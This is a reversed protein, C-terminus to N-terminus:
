TPYRPRRGVTVDIWAKTRSLLERTEFWAANPYAHRDAEAGEADMGISRAVWLARSLHFRQTVIIAHEIGFVTHARVISSYTDLGAHDLILASRPVGRAALYRAMADTEDYDKRSHDGTVLIKPARGSRHLALATDLRDRLVESPEEGRVGAGLVVIAEAGKRSPNSEGGRLVVVNCVAMVAVGIAAAALL